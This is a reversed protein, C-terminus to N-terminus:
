FVMRETRTGAAFRDLALPRVDVRHSRGETVWEAVAQGVSLAHMVGHGSFGAAVYLGAPADLADVIPHADPTMEYVGAWATEIPATALRPARRLAAQRVAPLLGDHPLDDFTPPDPPVPVGPLGFAVQHQGRGVFVFHSGPDIVFPLREPVDPMPPTRWLTRKSPRIPLDIGVTAAIPASWAGAALVVAPAEIFGSDTAVGAVRGATTAIGTVRRSFLFEVEVRRAGELLADLLEGPAFHGDIPCFSAGVLGDTGLLAVRRGAEAPTLEEVPVGLRRQLVADERMEQWADPDSALVLYGERHLTVRRGTEDALAALRRASELSLRVNVETSFQHRFGAPAKLSSGQGADGAREVVAIRGAGARGLHYAVSLGVMGAGIVIADYRAGTM